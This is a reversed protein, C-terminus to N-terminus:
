VNQGGSKKMKDTKFIQCVTPVFVTMKYDFIKSFECM